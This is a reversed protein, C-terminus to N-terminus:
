TPPKYVTIAGDATQVDPASGVCASLAVVLFVGIIITRQM